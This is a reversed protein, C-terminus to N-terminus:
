DPRQIVAMQEKFEAYKLQYAEEFIKEGQELSIENRQKIEEIQKSAMSPVLKDVLGKSLMLNDILKHMECEIKQEERELFQIEYEFRERERAKRERQRSRDEVQNEEKPTDVVVHKFPEVKAVKKHKAYEESIDIQTLLAQSLFNYGTVMLVQMKRFFQYLLPVKLDYLYSEVDKYAEEIHSITNRLYFILEPHSETLHLHGEFKRLM